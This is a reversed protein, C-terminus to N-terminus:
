KDNVPVEDPNEEKKALKAAKKEAGSKDLKLVTDSSGDWIRALFYQEGYRHFVLKSKPKDTMKGRVVTFIVSKGKKAHRITVAGNDGTQEILYEGKPLRKSGVMFDFPIEARIRFSFAATALSPAALAVLLAAAIFLSFLRTKM